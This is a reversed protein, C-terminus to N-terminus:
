DKDVRLRVVKFDEFGNKELLARYLNMFEQGDKNLGGKSGVFKDPLNVRLQLVTGGLLVLVSM